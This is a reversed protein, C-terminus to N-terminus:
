HELLTRFVAIAEVVPETLAREPVSQQLTKYLQSLYRLLVGESRQLGYLRVYDAFSAYRELLDRGISKPRIVEGGVWPPRGPFDNFPAYIFEAFPKPHTVEELREMREEYEVGEAKLRAILADKEKEVQRRLIVDPDELVSEVVSLLSLAYEPDEPDLRSIAEVLYLSLAQHLSFERQLEADVVVWLYGSRSDRRMQVIGTRHLSRVLQASQRLLRRKGAEDEHCRR